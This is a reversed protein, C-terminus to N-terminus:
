KIIDVKAIKELILDGYKDKTITELENKNIGFKNLTDMNGKLVEDDRILSLQKLIDDIKQDSIKSEAFIFAINAIGKKVGMKPIALKLQREGSAYLLIEKELSFTTNTKRLMARKAHEYASILHNYGFILDADFVQILINFEQAINEVKKLFKDVDKINGKAGIIKLMDKRM